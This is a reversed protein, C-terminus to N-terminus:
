LGQPLQARNEAISKIQLSASVVFSMLNHNTDPSSKSKKILLQWLAGTRNWVLVVVGRGCGRM